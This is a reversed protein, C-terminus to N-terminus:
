LLVSIGVVFTSEQETGGVVAERGQGRGQRGDRGRDRGGGWCGAGTGVGAERGRGLV